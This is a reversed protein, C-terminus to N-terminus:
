ITEVKLIWGSSLHPKAKVLSQLRTNLFNQEQRLKKPTPNIIVKNFDDGLLKIGNQYTTLFLTKM